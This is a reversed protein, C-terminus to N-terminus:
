QCVQEHDGRGRKGEGEGRGGACEHEHNTGEREQRNMIKNEEGWLMGCAVTPDSSHRSVYVFMADKLPVPYMWSQLYSSVYHQSTPAPPPATSSRLKITGEGLCSKM